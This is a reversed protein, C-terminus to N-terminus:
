RQGIARQDGLSVRARAIVATGTDEPRWSASATQAAFGGDGLEAAVETALREASPEDSAPIIVALRNGGYRCATGGYAAAVRQVVVAAARIEEDGAAYGKSANVEPIRTLEVLVVGFPRGQVRARQAEADATEHLYRRTYLLTLNDIVALPGHGLVPEDGDRRVELEPDGVAVAEEELALPNRRVEEVFVRVVEPDFQTGACRELEACAEEPTMAGRYPRDSVMASFADAVGIIRAELPIEKGRLGSPYGEGDFREHYHLVAPSIPRLAPVQQLLRYGIRPHLNIVVREDPTLGAPKLLIRESIGIKGIDHLLSAFVLEERRAPPLDLRDAVAAVYRSVEDSHGRVLPDKVQIADALVGVTALYSTRLEGRLRTNHLVAGAHQGVALLLEDDHEAFGEPNNACVVVGSFEDRLYIPVAVLNEIEEDAETRKGPEADQPNEERVTRDHEIVERAFRQVLASDEPDHDFGESAVLDLRGDGDEDQRLFLLGKEADVLTRVLRLVMTPVDHPDGLTGRERSLRLVENHLERHWDRQAQYARESRTRLYRERGLEKESEKLRSELRESERRHAEENERATGLEERAEHLENVLRERERREAEEAASRRARDRWWGLLLILGAALLFLLPADDRADISVPSLIAALIAYVVAAAFVVAAVV